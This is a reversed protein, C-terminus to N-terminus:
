APSPAFRALAQRLREYARHARIRAAGEQIQLVDAVERFPRGELKHMRVVERQGPPLADVAERVSDIVDRREGPAAFVPEPEPLAGERTLTERSRGLRRLEDIALNRAIALVWPGVASGRTYRDRARHVRLFTQQTLDDARDEGVWRRQARRIMPSLADYVEHFAAVDGDAYRGMAETQRAWQAERTGEPATPRDHRNTADM